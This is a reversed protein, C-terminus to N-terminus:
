TKSLIYKTVYLKSDKIFQVYFPFQGKGIPIGGSIRDQGYVCNTLLALCITVFINDMM